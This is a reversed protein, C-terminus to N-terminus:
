AETIRMASRAGSWEPSPLAFWLLLMRRRPHGTRQFSSVWAWSTAGVCTAERPVPLHFRPRLVSEPRGEQAGCRGEERPPPPGDIVRRFELRDPGGGSVAPRTSVAPASHPPLEHLRESRHRRVALLFPSAMVVCPAPRLRSEGARRMQIGAFPEILIWPSLRLALRQDARQLSVCMDVVSIVACCSGPM